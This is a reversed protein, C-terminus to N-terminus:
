VSGSVKGEHSVAVSICVSIKVMCGMHVPNVVFFEHGAVSCIRETSTTITSHFRANNERIDVAIMDIGTTIYM